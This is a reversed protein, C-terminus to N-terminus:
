VARAMFLGTTYVVRATGDYRDIAAGVATLLVGLQEGPLTSHDSYTALLDCYERASFAQEWTTLECRADAFVPSSQLEMFIPSDASAYMARAHDQECLVAAHRRYAAQVSDHLAGPALSASNGFVALTGPRRLTRALKTLRQDPALWHFAQAIFALDFGGVPADWDEFSAVELEVNSFQALRDRASQALKEGPELCLIHLGREALPLTAKGTGTGVELLRASAGVGAFDLMQEFVSQPYSPRAREYLEAVHDFSKELAAAVV